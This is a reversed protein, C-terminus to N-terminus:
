THKLRGAMAAILFDSYVQAVATKLTRADATDLVQWAINQMIKVHDAVFEICIDSLFAVLIDCSLYKQEISM